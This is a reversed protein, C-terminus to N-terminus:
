VNSFWMESLGNDGWLFSITSKVAGVYGKDYSWSDTPTITPLYRLVVGDKDVTNQSHFHGAHVEAYKTEGYEKRAEKQLWTTINAKAMNGHTWGILSNGIKRYKRSKPDCDIVVNEDHRYYHDLSKMLMYGTIGDHNGKIYPVEVLAIGSLLDIAKILMSTALDFITPFDMNSNIHTGFTTTKKATDYHLIDGMPVLYIKELNRDEIRHYIDEIVQSFAESISEDDKDPEVSDGGVHLDPVCIELIKGTQEVADRKPAYTKSDYKEFFEDVNELTLENPTKPAVTIRSQYLLLRTGGKKQMHWLNNRCVMLKWKKPDFKHAMMVSEPSKAEEECIEILRDSTIEGNGKIEFEEKYQYLNIKDDAVKSVGIGHSPIGAKKRATKFATRLRDGSEYGFREALQQWSVSM